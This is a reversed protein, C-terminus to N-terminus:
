PAVEYSRPSGSAEPTGEEGATGCPHHHPRAAGGSDAGLGSEGAPGRSTVLYYAVEGTGPPRSDAMELGALGCWRGAAEVLSPDQSYVGTSRLVAMNGRYVCYDTTGAPGATWALLGEGPLHLDLPAAQVCPLDGGSCDNDIGDGCVEAAGPFTAPDMDACDTGPVVPLAAAADGFGDDDADRMCVLAGPDETQAAGRFTAAAAPSDDDCDTGPTVGMPPTQDGFGDGDKDSTCAAPDAENPSAGPFASPDAPACDSGGLIGPNDGQADNWGSCAVYGDMDSDIEDAPPMPACTNSNGDCVEAAGPHTGPATDACDTGKVVPLVAASDGFGDDDVDRMCNLPAEIQAAGPFTAAGTASDDDCDSGIPVGPPPTLDGYDDGDKDRFCLSSFVESPAAGPFTDEDAPDCDGGGLIGPNDMQTDSWGSCAVFGDLDSDIENAPVAGSCANDNGDCREMAGPRTGADADNCDTSNESEGQAADCVGDEALVTTGATTGFGDGDADVICTRADFGNCNQDIGDSPIDATSPSINHDADNCDDGTPSEGDDTCDGDDSVLTASGGSGDLDADVFCTVTDAGSCDQDIGDDLVEDGGPFAAADDDACDNGAVVPLSVMGDGYGDDDFDKMCNLPAEIQAAGPFTAAATGSDDDCDTGATVGMPPSLAGFGDNDRDRMCAQPVLENGATGPFTTGDAPDCDGGGQISPNDGQVDVFPSCVVFGDGDGDLENAPVGGGCSNDNGDCVQSANPHSTPDTDACDTGSVTPLTASADGYGDDDRDRMCALPSEIQAAGPFTLSASPSGDDCDSGAIVGTPPASDGWDDGDRDRTCAMPDAENPSAGPFVTNDSARCDNGGLITPNNGQTDNWDLCAVFFDGDQDLENTPISGDCVNDNGDCVEPAGPFSAPDNDNCDRAKDDNDGPASPDCVDFTDNDADPSDDGNGNCNEDLTNCTIEMAGPFILRDTPACDAGDLHTDNDDDDDRLNRGKTARDDDTDELTVAYVHKQTVSSLLLDVFGDGNLDGASAAWGVEDGAGSRRDGGFIMADVNDVGTCDSGSACRNLDVPSILVTANQIVYATGQDIDNTRLARGDERRATIALDDVGSRDFDGFVVAYGLGDGSRRAVFVVDASAATSPASGQEIFPANWVYVKGGNTRPGTGTNTLPNGSTVNDAMIAGTALRGQASIAVSFGFYDGAAEGVIGRLQFDIGEEFIGDHDLGSTPSLPGQVTLVKGNPHGVAGIALDDSRGTPLTNPDHDRDLDGVALVEGLGDGALGEIEVLSAENAQVVGDAVSMATVMGNGNLAGRAGVIIDEHNGSVTLVKGFAVSYGFEDDEEPRASQVAQGAEGPDLTVPSPMPGAAMCLTGAPIHYATGAPNGTTGPIGPAGLLLAAAGSPSCTGAIRERGVAVSFGLSSPQGPFSPGLDFIVDAQSEAGVRRDVPDNPDLGWGANASVRGFFIYARNRQPDGVVLDALADGNLHGTAVSWGFQGQVSPDAEFRIDGGQCEPRPVGNPDQLPECLDFSAPTQGGIFTPEVRTVSLLVLIGLLSFPIFFRAAREM